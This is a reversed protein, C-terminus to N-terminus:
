GKNQQGSLWPTCFFVSMQLQVPPAAAGRTLSLAFSYWGGASSNFAWLARSSATFLCFAACASQLAACAREGTM